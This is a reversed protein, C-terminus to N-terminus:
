DAQVLEVHEISSGVNSCGEGDSNVSGSAASPGTSYWLVAHRARLKPLQSRVERHPPVATEPSPVRSGDVDMAGQGTLETSIPWSFRVRATLMSLRACAARRGARQASFDLQPASPTM